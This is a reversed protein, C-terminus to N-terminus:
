VRVAVQLKHRIFYGWHDLFLGVVTKSLLEEALDEIGAEDSFADPQEAFKQQRAMLEEPNGAFYAPLQIGASPAASRM